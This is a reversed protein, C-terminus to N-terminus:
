AGRPPEAKRVFTLRRPRAPLLAARAEFATQYGGTAQAGALARDAARRSIGLEAAAVDLSLGAALLQVIEEARGASGQRLELHRHRLRMAEYHLQPIDSEIRAAFAEEGIGRYIMACMLRDAESTGPLAMVVGRALGARLFVRDMERVEPPPDYHPSRTWAELDLVLPEWSTAVHNVALNADNPISIDYDVGPPFRVHSGMHEVRGSPTLGLQSWAFDRIGFPALRTLFDDFIRTLASEPEDRQSGLPASPRSSEALPPRLDMNRAHSALRLTTSQGLKRRLDALHRDVTVVSIGLREAIEQRGAGEALLTLVARQRATIDARDTETM